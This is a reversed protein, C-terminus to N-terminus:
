HYKPPPLKPKYPVGCDGCKLPDGWRNEILVVKGCQPCTANGQKDKDGDRIVKVVM